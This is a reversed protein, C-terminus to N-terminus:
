SPIIHEKVEKIYGFRSMDTVREICLIGDLHDVEHQVVRAYFGVAEISVTEGALTQYNYHIRKHRLVEAALGPM